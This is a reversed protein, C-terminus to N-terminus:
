GALFGGDVAFVTGTAYDSAPMCLFV